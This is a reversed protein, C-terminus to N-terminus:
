CVTATLYIVSYMFTQWSNSVPDSSCSILDILLLGHPWHPSSSSVHGQNTIIIVLTWKASHIFLLVTAKLSSHAESGCPPSTFFLKGSGVELTYNLQGPTIGPFKCTLCTGLHHQHNQDPFNMKLVMLTTFLWRPENRGLSSVKRFFALM